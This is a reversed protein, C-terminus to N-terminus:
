LLVSEVRVLKYITKDALPMEEEKGEIIAYALLIGLAKGHHLEIDVLWRNARAENTDIWVNAM